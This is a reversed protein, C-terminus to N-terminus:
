RQAPSPMAERARQQQEQQQSGPRGPTPQSTAEVGEGSAQSQTLPQVQRNQGSSAQNGINWRREQVETYILGPIHLDGKQDEYSDVWARMVKAQTRIPTPGDIAVHQGVQRSEPQQRDVPESESEIGGARRQVSARRHGEHAREGDDKEPAAKEDKGHDHGEHPDAGSSTQQYVERASACTIGDAYGDCSYESEGVGFGSCGQLAAMSTLVLVIAKRNM